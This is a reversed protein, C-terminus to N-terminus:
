KESEEGLEYNQYSRSFVVKVTKFMNVVKEWAEEKIRALEMKAISLRM